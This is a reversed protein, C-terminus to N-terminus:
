RGPMPTWLPDCTAAASSLFSFHRQGRYSFPLQHSRNFLPKLESQIASPLSPTSVASKGLFFIFSGAVIGVPPFPPGACKSEKGWSFFSCTLLSYITAAAAHGISLPRSCREASSLFFIRRRPVKECLCLSPQARGYVLDLRRGSKRPGEMWIFLCIDGRALGRVPLFFVFM